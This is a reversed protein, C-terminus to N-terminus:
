LPLIETKIPRIYKRLLYPNEQRCPVCWSAGFDLLVDKGRFQSLSVARGEADDETFDPAPAGPVLRTRMAIDKQIAQADPSQRVRPSLSYFIKSLSAVPLHKVQLRFASVYSDPHQRIFRFDLTDYVRRLSDLAEKVLRMRASDGESKAAGYAKEAAEYSPDVKDEEAEWMRYEDETKSGTIEGHKVDGPRLVAHM